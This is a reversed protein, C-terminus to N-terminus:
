DRVRTCALACGALVALIIPARIVATAGLCARFCLGFCFGVGGGTIGCGIACFLACGIIRGALRGGIAIPVCIGVCRGFCSLYSEKSSRYFQEYCPGHGGGVPPCSGFSLLFIASNVEECRGGECGGYGLPPCVTGSVPAIVPCACPAPLESQVTLGNSDMPYYGSPEGTAGMMLLEGGTHRYQWHQNYGLANGAPLYDEVSAWSNSGMARNYVRMPIGGCGIRCVYRYEQQSVVDQKWVRVGDSNYGYAYAVQLSSNGYDREIRVLRGEEDYGFVRAYSNPQNNEWRALTGEPNWVFEHRPYPPTPNVRDEVARLRGSVADYEYFDHHEGNLADDRMVMARSGDPNYAYVRSYAVQGTRGESELRGAPTYTYATVDGSPREVSQAVGGLLDYSYEYGILLSGDQKKHEVKWVFGVQSPNNAGYYTYEVYSGNPLYQEVQLRGTTNNYGYVVQRRYTPTPVPPGDYDGVSRLRGLADYTSEITRVVSGDARLEKEFRKRGAPDYEASVAVVEIGDGSGGCGRQERVRGWVDYTYERRGAGDQVWVRRNEGDWGM